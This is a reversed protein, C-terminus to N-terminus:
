VEDYLLQMCKSTIGINRERETSIFSFLYKKEQKRTAVTLVTQRRVACPRMWTGTLTEQM